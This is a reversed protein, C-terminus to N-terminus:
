TALDVGGLSLEKNTTVGLDEAEHVPLGLREEELALVGSPNGPSNEEAALVLLTDVLNTVAGPYAYICVVVSV